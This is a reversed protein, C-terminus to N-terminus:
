IMAVSQQGIGLKKGFETRSLKLLQRLHKIRDNISNVESLHIVKPNKEFGGAGGDRQNYGNPTKCKLVKIWFRERENAQTQTECTEIVELTFNELGCQRMANGLPTKAKSHQLFRKEISQRTQGVYPKGNLQNTIKYIATM